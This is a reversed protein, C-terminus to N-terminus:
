LPPNDVDIECSSVSSFWKASRRSSAASETPKWRSRGARERKAAPEGHQSNARARKPHENMIPKLEREVWQAWSGPRRPERGKDWDPIQGAIGAHGSARLWHKLAPVLEELKRIDGLGALQTTDTKRKAWVILASAADTM